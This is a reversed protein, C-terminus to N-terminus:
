KEKFVYNSFFVCRYRFSKPEGLNIRVGMNEEMEYLGNEFLNLQLGICM